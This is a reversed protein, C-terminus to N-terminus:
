AQGYPAFPTVGGGSMAAMIQAMVDPGAPQPANVAMQMPRYNKPKTGSAPTITFGANQQPLGMAALVSPQPASFSLQTPRYNSGKSGSAPTVNFATQSPAAPSVPAAKQPLQSPDIGLVSELASVPKQQGQAQQPSLGETYAKAMNVLNSGDMNGGQASEFFSRALSDYMGANAAQRQEEQYKAKQEPTMMNPDAGQQPMGDPGFM